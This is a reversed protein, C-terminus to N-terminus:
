FTFSCVFCLCSLLFLLSIFPAFCDGFSRSYKHSRLETNLYSIRKKAIDVITPKVDCNPKWDVASLTAGTPFHFMFMAKSSRRKM